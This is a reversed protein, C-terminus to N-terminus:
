VIETVSIPVVMYNKMNDPEVLVKCRDGIEVDAKGSEKPGYFIHEKGSEDKYSCTIQTYPILPERYIDAKREIVEAIVEKTRKEENFQKYKGPLEKRKKNVFLFGKIILTGALLYFILFRLISGDGNMLCVIIVIIIAIIAAWMRKFFESM